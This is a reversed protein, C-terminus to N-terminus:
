KECGGRSQMHSIVEGWGGVRIDSRKSGITPSITDKSGKKSHSRGMQRRRNACQKQEEAHGISRQHKVVRPDAEKNGDSGVRKGKTM